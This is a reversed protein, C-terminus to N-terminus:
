LRCEKLNTTVCEEHNNSMFSLELNGEAGGPLAERSNLSSEVVMVPQLGLCSTLYYKKFNGRKPLNYPM